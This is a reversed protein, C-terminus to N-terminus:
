PLAACLAWTGLVFGVWPMSPAALLALAIQGAGLAAIGWRGRSRATPLLAASAALVAATTLIAPNGSLLELM